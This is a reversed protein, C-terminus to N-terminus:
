CTELLVLYKKKVSRNLLFTLNQLTTVCMNYLGSYERWMNCLSWHLIQCVTGPVKCILLRHTQAPGRYGSALPNAGQYQLLLYCYLLEDPSPPHLRGKTALSQQWAERKQQRPGKLDTKKLWFCADASPTRYALQVTVPLRWSFLFFLILCFFLQGRTDWVLAWDMSIKFFFFFLFIFSQHYRRLSFSYTSQTKWGCGQRDQKTRSFSHTPEFSLAPSHSKCPPFGKACGQYPIPYKGAPCNKAEVQLAQQM